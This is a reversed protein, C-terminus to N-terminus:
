HITSNLKSINQPPDKQRHEDSINVHLKKTQKDNGKDPKAVCCLAPRISHIPFNGEEEIKWLLKLLIPILEKM